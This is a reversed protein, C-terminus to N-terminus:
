TYVSYVIFIVLSISDLFRYNPFVYMINASNTVYKKNLLNEEFLGGHDEEEGGKSNISHILIGDSKMTINNIDEQELVTVLPIM